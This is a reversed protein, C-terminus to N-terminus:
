EAQETDKPEESEETKKKRTKRTPKKEEAAPEEGEAAPEETKKKRPKRAPKKEEVPAEDTGEEAPKEEPKVATASKAVVDIARRSCIQDKVQDPLIYKKVMEAEMGFQEALKKYEEEVDEDSAEISEAKIIAMVALDMKVQRLAPERADELLKSEQIGTM